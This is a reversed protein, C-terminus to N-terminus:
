KVHKWTNGRLANWATYYSVGGLTALRSASWDNRRAKAVLKENLIAKPHESGIFPKHRGREDRQRTNEAPTGLSLHEPSCCNPVDCAHLVDLHDPIDGKSLRYTVRHVREVKRVSNHVMGYGFGDVAGQWLWCGRVEDVVCRSKIFELTLPACRRRSQRTGSVDLWDSHKKSVALARVRAKALNHEYACTACRTQNWSKKLTSAGCDACLINM